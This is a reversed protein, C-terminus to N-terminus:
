CCSTGACCTDAGATDIGASEIGVETMCDSICSPDIAEGPKTRVEITIGAEHSRVNVSEVKQFEDTSCECSGDACGAFTDLLTSREAGLGLIEITVGSSAPTIDYTTM